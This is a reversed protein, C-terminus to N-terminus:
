GDFVCRARASSAIGDGGDTDTFDKGSRHVANGAADVQSEVDAVGILRPAIANHLQDLAGPLIKGSFALNRNLRFQEIGVSRRIARGLHACSKGIGAALMFERKEFHHAAGVVIRKKNRAYGRGAHEENRAAM